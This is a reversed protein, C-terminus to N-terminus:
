SRRPSIADFRHADSDCELPNGPVQTKRNGGDARPLQALAKGGSPIKLPAHAIGAQRRALEEAHHDVLPHGLIAQRHYALELEPRGPPAGGTKLCGEASGDELGWGRPAHGTQRNWKFHFIGSPKWARDREMTCNNWFSQGHRENRCKRDVVFARSSRTESDWSERGAPVLVKELALCLWSVLGMHVFCQM